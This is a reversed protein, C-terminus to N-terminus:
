ATEKNLFEQLENLEHIWGSYNEEYSGVGAPLAAFGTETLKLRTGSGADELTFTVLTLTEERIPKSFDVQGHEWRYAFRTMPEVAAIIARSTHSHESWEFEIEQGVTLSAIRTASGFWQSILEARTIAAWVKERPANLLLEREITDKKTM